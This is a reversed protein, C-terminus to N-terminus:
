ILTDKGLGCFLSFEGGVLAVWTEIGLGLTMCPNLKNNTRKRVGVTKRQNRPKGGELFVLVGFELKIPFGLAVLKNTVLSVNHGVRM